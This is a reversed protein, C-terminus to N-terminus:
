PAPTQAQFMRTFEGPQAGAAPPPAHAPGSSVVPPPPTSSAGFMREFEDQNKDAPPAATPAASVVPVPQPRSAPMTSPAAPIHPPPPPVIYRAPAAPATQPVPEHPWQPAAVAPKQSLLWERFGPHGILIATVVYPTGEHDGQDILLSRGAPPLDRVKR